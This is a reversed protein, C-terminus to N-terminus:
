QSTCLFVSVAVFPWVHNQPGGQRRRASGENEHYNESYTILIVSLHVQTVQRQVVMAFIVTQREKSMGTRRKGCLRQVGPGLKRWARKAITSTPLYQQLRPLDSHAMTFHSTVADPRGRTCDQVCEHSPSVRLLM